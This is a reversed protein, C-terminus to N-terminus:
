SATTIPIRGGTQTKSTDTAYNQSFFMGEVTTMLDEISTAVAHAVINNDAMYGFKGAISSKITIAVGAIGLMQNRLILLGPHADAPVDIINEDIDFELFNFVNDSIEWYDCSGSGAEFIIANDPGAAEGVFLNETIKGRVGSAVTIIDVPTALCSLVCNHLHFDDAAVDILATCASAAGVLIVNELTINAASVDCLNTAAATATFIPRTRGVGLGVVHVGAIDLGISTTTEAHGPMVYIIDGNSATCQSFAYDLTAFPNEKSRGKTASDAAGSAGSDLFFVNGTTVLGHFPRLGENFSREMQTKSPM